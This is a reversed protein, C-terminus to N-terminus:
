VFLAISSPLFQILEVYRPSKLVTEVKMRLIELVKIDSNFVVPTFIKIAIRHTWFEACLIDGSTIRLWSVFLDDSM